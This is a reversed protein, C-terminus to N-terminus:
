SPRNGSKFHTGNGDEVKIVTNATHWVKVGSVVIYSTGVEQIAGQLEVQPANPDYPPPTGSDSTVTVILDDTGVLEGDSASLRLTYTGAISFSATTNLASANGFNVTDPGSVVSWSYTMVGPSNPLGYVNEPM